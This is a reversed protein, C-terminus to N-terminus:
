AASSRAAPSRRANRLRPTYRFRRAALLLDRGQQPVLGGRLAEDFRRRGLAPPQWPKQQHERASDACRTTCSEDRQEARAAHALDIAGTVRLETAVDRDLDQRPREHGIRLAARPERAFCAQEGREIMRVDGRDVAQFFRVAHVASTRSSTSPGVSARAYQLTPRHWEPRGQRDRALDGLREVRRVLLADNMAIQLRGIM